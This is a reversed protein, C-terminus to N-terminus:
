MKDNNGLMKLIAHMFKRNEAKLEQMEAKIQGVDDKIATFKRNEAKLEQMEAKIQGVDDKIAAVDNRLLSNELGIVRHVELDRCDEELYNDPNKVRGSMAGWGRMETLKDVAARTLNIHLHAHCDIAYESDDNASATEWKGFNAAISEFAGDTGPINNINKVCEKVISYITKVVNWMEKDKVLECNTCHARPVLLIDRIPARRSVIWYRGKMIEKLQEGPAIVFEEYPFYNCVRQVGDARPIFQQCPPYYRSDTHTYKCYKNLCPLYKCYVAPEILTKDTPDEKPLNHLYERTDTIFTRAIAIPVEGDIKSQMLYDFWAVADLKMRLHWGKEYFVELRYKLQLKPHAKTLKNFISILRRCSAACHDPEDLDLTDPYLLEPKERSIQIASAM